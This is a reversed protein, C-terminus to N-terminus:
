LLTKAILLIPHEARILELHFFVIIDIVVLEEKGICTNNPYAKLEFEVKHKSEYWIIGEVECYKLKDEPTILMEFFWNKLWLRFILTVEDYLLNPLEMIVGSIKM